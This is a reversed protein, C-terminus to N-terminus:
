PHVPFCRPRAPSSSGWREQACPRPSSHKRECTFTHTRSHTDVGVIFECTEAVMAM